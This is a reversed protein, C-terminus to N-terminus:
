TMKGFSQIKILAPIVYFFRFFALVFVNISYLKQKKEKDVKISNSYQEAHKAYVTQRSPKSKYLVYFRSAHFLLCRTTSLFINKATFLRTNDCTAM